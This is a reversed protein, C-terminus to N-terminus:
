PFVLCSDPYHLQFKTMRPRNVPKNQMIESTGSGTPLATELPSSVGVDIVVKFYAECTQHYALSISIIERNPDRHKISHKKNLVCSSLLIVM